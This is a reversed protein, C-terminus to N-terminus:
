VVLFQNGIETWAPVRVKGGDETSLPDGNVLIQKGAALPVQETGTNQLLRITFDEGQPVIDPAVVQYSPKQQATTAPCLFVVTALLIGCCAALKRAQRMAIM